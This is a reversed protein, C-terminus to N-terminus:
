LMVGGLAAMAILLDHFIIDQVKWGGRKRAGPDESLLEESSLSMRFDKRDGLHDTRRGRIRKLVETAEGSLEITGADGCLGELFLWEGEAWVTKDSSYCCEADHEHEHRRYTFKGGRQLELVTDESAEEMRCRRGRRHQSTFRKGSCWEPEPPLLVASLCCGAVEAAATSGRLPASAGAEGGCSRALQVRPAQEVDVGLERAIQGQLDGLELSAACRIKCSRGSLLRVEFEVENPDAAPPGDEGAFWLSSLLASAM